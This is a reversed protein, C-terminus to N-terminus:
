LGSVTLKGYEGIPGGETNRVSEITQDERHRQLSTEDWLWTRSKVEPTKGAARNRLREAAGGRKGNIANEQQETARVAGSQATEDEPYESHRDTTTWL